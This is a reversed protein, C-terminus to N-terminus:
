TIEPGTIYETIWRKPNRKPCIRVKALETAIPGLGLRRMRIIDIYM